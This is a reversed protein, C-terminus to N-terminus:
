HQSGDYCKESMWSLNNDNLPAFSRFTVSQSMQSM